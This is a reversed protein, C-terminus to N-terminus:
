KGIYPKITIKKVLRGSGECKSCSVTESEDVSVRVSTNGTGKCADCIIIEISEM